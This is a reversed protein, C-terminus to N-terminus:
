HVRGESVGDEAQWGHVLVFFWAAFRDNETETILEFVHEDDREPPVAEVYAVQEPDILLEGVLRKGRVVQIVLTGPEEATFEWHVDDDDFLDGEVEVRATLPRIGRQHATFALPIRNEGPLLEVGDREVLVREDPGVLTVRGVAAGTADVVLETRVEGGELVTANGTDLARAAVTLLGDDPPIAYIKVGRIAAVAAVARVLM